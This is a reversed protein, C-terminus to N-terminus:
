TAARAVEHRTRALAVAATALGVVLAGAFALAAARIGFATWLAGFLVSALLRSLTTATGLLALGGTRLPAPVVASALAMLVGDTAAYYAGFLALYVVIAGIGISPLLLSSYVVLLLAYGGVFMRGRGWRDAVRGLPVALLMYSLATGVYLLPFYRSDFHLHHQLGLYLFADSITAAALVAGAFVLARLRPVRLLAATARLSVAVEAEREGRPAPKEVFLALIGLGVVASCFSVVFIARFDLPSLTLLGFALLPGIMAGTTDLARHVGFSTALQDRDSSLSILADRPATRIGKGTRDALVVGVLAGWASGVVLFLLKCVASLGYGLVAMEKQRRWRDAVFGSAIRVLVGAGLYVGDVVGFQLPDLGRTYVLYLPLVTSVMESSIDTFLSTLGLLVVNRSVRGGRLRRRLLAKHARLLAQSNEVQYM